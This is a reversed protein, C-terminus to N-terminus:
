CTQFRRDPLLGAGKELWAVWDNTAQVSLRRSSPAATPTSSKKKAMLAETM